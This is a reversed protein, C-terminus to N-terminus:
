VATRRRIGLGGLAALWAGALRIGAPLPIASPGKAVRAPSFIQGGTGTLPDVGFGIWEFDALDLTITQAGGTFTLFLGTGVTSAGVFESRAASFLATDTGNGGDFLDDPVADCLGGGAALFEAVERSSGAEYEMIAAREEFLEVDLDSWEDTLGQWKKHRSEQSEQSVQSLQSGPRGGKEVFAVAAGLAMGSGRTM